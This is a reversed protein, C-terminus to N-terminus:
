AILEIEDGIGSEALMERPLIVSKSNGVQTLHTKM